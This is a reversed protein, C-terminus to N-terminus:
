EQSTHRPSLGDIVIAVMTEFYQEDTYPLAIAGTRLVHMMVISHVIHCLQLGDLDTRILRKERAVRLYEDLSRNIPESSSSYIQQAETPMRWVEGIFVRIMPEHRRLFAAVGRIYRLIDERFTEACPEGLNLLLNAAEQKINRQVVAKVLLEKTSFNRFLTTENVGATRAIERTTAGKIGAEGFIKEAADLIRERARGKEPRGASEHPVEANM